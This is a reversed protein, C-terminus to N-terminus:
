VACPDQETPAEAPHKRVDAVGRLDSFDKVDQFQSGQLRLGALSETKESLVHQSQLLSDDGGAEQPSAVDM